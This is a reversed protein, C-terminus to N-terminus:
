GKVVEGVAPNLKQGITVVKYEKGSGATTTSRFLISDAERREGIAFYSTKEVGLGIRDVGITM